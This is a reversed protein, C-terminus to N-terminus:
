RGPIKSNNHATRVGRVLLFGLCGLLAIGIILEKSASPSAAGFCGCAVSLGRMQASVLVVIFTATMLMAMTIAGLYFRRFILATGCCVELWPLYFGVAAAGLPPILHYNQVTTFFQVPDIAKISGAYVFLAGAFVRVAPEVFRNMQETAAV